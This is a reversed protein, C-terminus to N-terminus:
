VVVDVVGVFCVVVVGGFVVGVCVVVGSDVDWCCGIWCWGVGGYGSGFYM